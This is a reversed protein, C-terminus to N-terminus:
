GHDLSEDHRHRRPELIPGPGDQLTQLLGDDHDRSRLRPLPRHHRRERRDGGVDLRDDHVVSGSREDVRLQEGGDDGGDGLLKKGVAVAAPVAIGVAAGAVVKKGTSLGDSEEM